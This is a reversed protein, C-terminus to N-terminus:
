PASKHKVREKKLWKKEGWENISTRSNAHKEPPRYITKKRLGTGRCKPSDGRPGGKRTLMSEKIHSGKGIIGTGGGITKDKGFDTSM